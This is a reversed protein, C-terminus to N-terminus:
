TDIRECNRFVIDIRDAIVTDVGRGCDVTDREGDRAYVRDAGYGGDFRDRGPGGILVDAGYGGELTDNGGAGFLRDDGGLGCILEGRATGHIVDAELDRGLLWCRSMRVYASTLNSTPDSDRGTTKVEAGASLLGRPGRVTFQLERRSDPGLTGLACSFLITAPGSRAFTCAQNDYKLATVAGQASFRQRLVASAPRTGENTVSVLFTAGVRGALTPATVRAVFDTCEFPPPPNGGARWGAFAGNV